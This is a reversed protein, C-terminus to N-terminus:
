KATLVIRRARGLLPVRQNRVYARLAGQGAETKIETLTTALERLPAVEAEANNQAIEM